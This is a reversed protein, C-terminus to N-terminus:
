WVHIPPWHHPSWSSCDTWTLRCVYPRLSHSRSSTAMPLNSVFTVRPRPQGHMCICGFWCYYQAGVVDIDVRNDEEISGVKPRVIQWSKAICTYMYTCKLYMDPFICAHAYAYAYIHDFSFARVVRVFMSMQFKYKHLRWWPSVMNDPVDSFVWGFALFITCMLYVSTLLEQLKSLSMKKFFM